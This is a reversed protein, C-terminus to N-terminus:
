STVQCILARAHDRQKCEEKEVITVSSVIYNVSLRIQAADSNTTITDSSPESNELIDSHPVFTIYSCANSM